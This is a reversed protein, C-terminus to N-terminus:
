DETFIFNVFQSLQTLITYTKLDVSSYLSILLPRDVITLRV